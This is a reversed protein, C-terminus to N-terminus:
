VGKYYHGKMYGKQKFYENKQGNLERKIILILKNIECPSEDNISLRFTTVGSESLGQVSEPVYLKDFSLVTSRCSLPDGIVPFKAGTRDKLYYSGKQCLGCKISDKKDSIESGIPCHESIMVPLRGYVTAEMEIGCNCINKIESLTLEHSLTIGKLGLKSAAKISQSNYINLSYDGIIPLGCDALMEVHSINGILVGDIGINLFEKAQEKLCKDEEGRTIPPILAFVQVGRAKLNNIAEIHKKEFLSIFPVYIRDADINELAKNNLWKYLCVSVIPTANLKVNKNDIKVPTTKRNPYREKRIEILDDLTKRRISNIESLPVLLNQGIDFSCDAITFPTAGTKSIQEMATKIQLPKNIAPKPIFGSITKVENGDQDRISFSLPENEVAKFHGTVPVKKINKGSFTEQANKNLEKDSIKYVLDRKKVNGKIYGITVVEGKKGKDIKRNNKQIMTVINGPLSENVIEIGDGISLNDELLIDVYRKFADRGVVKGLYTGCHKPRERTILERGQKSFLYGTSFGGRNYIQKLNKIDQSCVPEQKGKKAYLDLYKRYISTVIAIYESSKMRGEIKLCKIGTDILKDLHEITCLDKPSLYYGKNSIEKNFDNTGSTITYPLRCPQACKGRNGSRGGIMSSMYCQGSYCQCLAGHAFVEIDINSENVINKIEILSLERALIVRSVGLREAIKVGETNYVTAQTSLHIPLQPLQKNVLGAFGIDQIIVADAGAQYVVNAYELAEQMELDNIITNLTIYVNAGRVHSYEIAKKLEDDNFNSANQRANFFKGGLYVADAGNEIAAILQQSGGVPVLLEPIQIMNEQIISIEKLTDIM